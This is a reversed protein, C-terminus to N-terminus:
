KFSKTFVAAEIAANKTDKTVVFMFEPDRVINLGTVIPKFIGHEEKELVVAIKYKEKKEKENSILKIRYKGNFKPFDNINFKDTIEFEKQYIELNQFEKEYITINGSKKILVKLVIDKAKFEFKMWANYAQVFIYISIISAVVTHIKTNTQNIPLKHIYVWYLTLSVILAVFFVLEVM